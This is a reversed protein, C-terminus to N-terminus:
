RYAAMSAATNNLVRANDEYNTTGMAVGGYTKLPSSWYQIRTCNSCNNGYAMITRWSKSAPIYGHGYAYPTTSGDVYRDHRAGQLHGVEHGFSYYGTICSYHAVAFASSATSGISSAIGCAESDNVVLVVVDAAYTNRLTHVNDMIGDTTSRLASVHQSFSRGSENYTVQATAVRVMNINVGSNVYSVNTEDVALQILSSVNSTAAAASATYVVLVNITSLAATGVTGGDPAKAALFNTAPPADLVGSPNDATHEPPLKTQDLKSVAHLGNGLPEITYQETGITVTGVMGDGNLVMQVWGEGGQLPGAWSIDSESRREVREGRAVVQVGPAVGLRLTRNERLLDGAAPVSRAVNVRPSIGRGRIRELRAEQVDSLAQEPVLTLLNQQVEAPNAATGAAPAAEDGGCAALSLSTALVLALRARM